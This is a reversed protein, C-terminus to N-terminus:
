KRQNTLKQITLIKNITEHLINELQEFFLYEDDDGCKKAFSKGYNAQNEMQKLKSIM